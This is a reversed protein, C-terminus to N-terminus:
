HYPSWRSRCVRRCEKGVRREESRGDAIHVEGAKLTAVRVINEPVIRIEVDKVFPGERWHDEFATFSLSEQLRQGKFKFPGSGIPAKAFTNAKGDMDGIRQIYAIPEIWFQPLGTPDLRKATLKVEDPAVAEAKDFRARPDPNINIAIYRNINGAVDQATVLAGDHFKAGPRIKFTYSMGDPAIQWSTPFGPGMRGDEQRIFLSDYLHDYMTETFGGAYEHADLNEDLLSSVAVVLKGEPKPKGASV